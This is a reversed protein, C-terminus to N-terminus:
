KLSAAIKKIAMSEATLRKSEAVQRMWAYAGIDSTKGSSRSPVAAAALSKRLLVAGLLYKKVAAKSAGM